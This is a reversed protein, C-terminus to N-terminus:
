LFLTLEQFHTQIYCSNFDKGPWAKISFYDVGPHYCYGRKMRAGGQHHNNEQFLTALHSHTIALLPVSVIRSWVGGQRSQLDPTLRVHEPTIMANGLLDWHASSSSGLGAHVRMCVCACM